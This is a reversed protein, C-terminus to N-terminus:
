RISPYLKFIGLIKKIFMKLTKHFPFRKETSLVYEIIVRMIRTPYLRGAAEKTYGNCWYTTIVECENLLVNEQSRQTEHKRFRSLVKNTAIFSGHKSLRVCLDVDMAYRFQENIGGLSKVLKTPFLTSSQIIKQEYWWVGFGSKTLQPSLTRLANGAYDIQINSGTWGVANPNEQYLDAWSTLAGQELLDDACLWGFLEGQAIALGKNIAHSQGRDPESIITDIKASYQKLIKSTDDTSGGDVVIYQLNAYGQSIVSEITAELFRAANYCPTVITITPRTM